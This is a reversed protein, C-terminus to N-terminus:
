EGDEISIEWDSWDCVTNGGKMTSFTILRADPAPAIVGEDTADITIAGEAVPGNRDGILYQIGDAAQDVSAICEATGPRFLVQWTLARNAPLQIDFTTDAHAFVRNCDALNGESGRVNIPEITDAPRADRVTVAAYEVSFTDEYEVVPDSPRLRWRVIEGAKYWDIPTAHRASLLTWSRLANPYIRFQETRGDTLEVDMKIITPRLLVHKPISLWTKAIDVRFFPMADDGAIAPVENWVGFRSTTVGGVPEIVYGTPDARRMG